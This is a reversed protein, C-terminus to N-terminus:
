LNRRTCYLNIYWSPDKEVYFDKTIPRLCRSDEDICKIDFGLSELYTLYDRPKVGARRLYAPAFETFLVLKDSKKITQKMGELAYPENGEIDIKIVDVPEGRLFEDVTICDVSITEEINVQPHRYMSHSDSDKYIFFTAKKIRESIAKQIPHIIGTYGNMQINRKLLDFNSSIPEFSYVKGGHGIQKAAVLSFYGFQAGIDLVTAGSKISNKFLKTTYPEYTHSTYAQFEATTAHIYMPIDNVKILCINNPALIDIMFHKAVRKINKLFSSKGMVTTNLYRNIRYAWKILKSRWM